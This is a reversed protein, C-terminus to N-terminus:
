KPGLAVIAFDQDVFAVGPQRSDVACGTTTPNGNTELNTSTGVTANEMTLLVTPAASFAVTWTIGYNGASTRSCSLGTGVIINGTTGQITARIITLGALQLELATLRALISTINTQAAEWNEQCDPLNVNLQPFQM